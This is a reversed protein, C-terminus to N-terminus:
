DAVVEILAGQVIGFRLAEKKSPFWIDIRNQHRRHMRDEVIFEKTGFLSPMRIRTGFPLMNTAVVGDRVRTNSATIFPTSDTEDISSSYATLTMTHAKMVLKKKEIEISRAFEPTMAPSPAPSPLIFTSSVGFIMSLTASILSLPIM